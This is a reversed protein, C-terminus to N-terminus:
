SKQEMAQRIAKTAGVRGGANNRKPAPITTYGFLQQLLDNSGAEEQQQEYQSKPLVGFMQAVKLVSPNLAAAGAVPNLPETGTEMFSPQVKGTDIDRLGLMYPEKGTLGVIAAKTAPGSTFPHSIQNFADTGAGEAVQQANGGSVAANYGGTAGTAKLGRGLLPNMFSLLDFELRGKKGTAIKQLMPGVQPDDQMQSPVPVYGLKSGPVQWPWQGTMGYYVAAWTTLGGITGGTLQQYVKLKAQQGKPLDPVVAMGPVAARTGSLAMTKGATFFPAVGTDKLNREVKAELVKNYAGMQNVFQRIEAPSAGPKIQDLTRLMVLRTRTDVGRPGYLAPGFSFKLGTKLEAGTMNAFEKSYTEGMTKEPLAGAKALRMLDKPAQPDKLPDTMLVQVLSNLRKIGPINAIPGGKLYPTNAVLVGLVNKSHFVADLPGVMGFANLAGVAKKYASPSLDSRNDLAPALEEALWNPMRVYQAKTHIEKVSGDPQVELITRSPRTMVTRGEYDQGKFNFPTNGKNETTVEILGAQKLQDILAAKTNAKLSETYANVIAKPSVDYDAGTGKAQFNRPNGPASMPRGIGAKRGVKGGEATLAELPFYTDLPGLNASKVGNNLQHADNFAQEFLEKYARVGQQIRPDAVAANFEADSMMHTTPTTDGSKVKGEEIGRLRSEALTRFLRDTQGGTAKSLENMGSRMLVAAQSRSSGYRAALDAAPQDAKSLDTLNEVWLNRLRSGIDGYKKSGTPGVNFAEEAVKRPDIGANVEVPGLREEKPGSGVAADNGSARSEQARNGGGVSEPRQSGAQSIQEGTQQLQKGKGNVQGEEQGQPVGSAAQRGTEQGGFQGGENGQRQGNQIKRVAENAQPNTKEHPTRGLKKDIAAKYEEPSQRVVDQIVAKANPKRQTVAYGTELETGTYGNPTKHVGFRLSADDPHAFTAGEVLAKTGGSDIEFSGRKTKVTSAKAAALRDQEYKAKSETQQQEYKARATDQRSQEMDAKAKVAQKAPETLPEMAGPSFRERLVANGGSKAKTAPPEFTVSDLPVMYTKGGYQASVWPQTSKPALYMERDAYKQALAPIADNFAKTRDIYAQPDTSKAAVKKSAAQLLQISDDNRGISGSQSATGKGGEGGVVPLTKSSTSGSPTSGENAAPMAAASGTPGEVPIPEQPKRYVDPAAHIPEVPTALRGADVPAPQQPVLARVLEQHPENIPPASQAQKIEGVVDPYRSVADTFATPGSKAAQSLKRGAEIGHKLAVLLMVANMWRPAVDQVSEGPQPVPNLSKAFEPFNSASDAIMKGMYIQSVGPIMFPVFDLAMTTAQNLQGVQKQSNPDGQDATAQLAALDNMTQGGLVTSGTVAQAIPNNQLAQAAGSVTFPKNGQEIRQQRAQGTVFGQGGTSAAQAIQEAETQAKLNTVESSNPTTSVTPGSPLSYPQVRMNVPDVVPIDRGYVTGPHQLLWQRYATDTRIGYDGDVSNKSEDTTRSTFQDPLLGAAKLGIQVAKIKNADWGEPADPRVIPGSPKTLDSARVQSGAPRVAKMVSPTMRVGGTSRVQGSLASQRALPDSGIMTVPIGGFTKDAM